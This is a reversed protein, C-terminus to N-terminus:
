FKFTIFIGYKNYIVTKISIFKRWSYSYSGSAGSVSLDITGDSGGNCTVDTQSTSLSLNCSATSFVVAGTYGSFPSKVAM